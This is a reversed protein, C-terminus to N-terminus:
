LLNLKIVISKNCNSVCVKNYSANLLRLSPLQFLFTPLFEINNKSVDIRTLFIMTAPGSGLIWDPCVHLKKLQNGCAKIVWSDSLKRIGISHWSIMIGSAGFSMSRSMDTDFSNLNGITHQAQVIALYNPRYELDLYAQHQIMVGIMEDDGAETAARMIQLDDDKANYRLLLEMLARDSRRFAEMLPSSVSGDEKLLPRNPDARHQLLVAVVDLYAMEENGLVALQLSTKGEGDEVDVDVGNLLDKSLQRSCSTKETKARKSGNGVDGSVRKEQTQHSHSSKESSSGEFSSSPRSTLVNLILEVIELRNNAVAVHLPTRHRGDRVDLAVVKSSEEDSTSHKVCAFDVLIKVIDLHGYICALHIPHSGDLTQM